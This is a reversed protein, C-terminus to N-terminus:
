EPAFSFTIDAPVLAAALNRNGWQISVPKSVLIFGPPTVVNFRIPANRPIKFLCPTMCTLIDYNENNRYIYVIAESKVPMSRLVLTAEGIKLGLDGFGHHRKAGKGVKKVEPNNLTDLQGVHSSTQTLAPTSSLTITIAFLRLANSRANRM